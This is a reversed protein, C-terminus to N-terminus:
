SFKVHIKSLSIATREIPEHNILNAMANISELANFLFHSLIQSQM